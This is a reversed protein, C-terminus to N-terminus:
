NNFDNLSYASILQLTFITLPVFGDIKL